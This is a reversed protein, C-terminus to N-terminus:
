CSKSCRPSNEREIRRPDAWSQQLLWELALSLAPPTDIFARQIRPIARITAGFGAIVTDGPYPYDIAAFAIGVPKGVLDVADKGTLHGGILVLVPLSQAM